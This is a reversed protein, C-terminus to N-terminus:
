HVSVEPILVSGRVHVGSLWKDEVRTREVGMVLILNAVPSCCPMSKAVSYIDPVVLTIKWYRLWTLIVVFYAKALRLPAIASSQSSRLRKYESRNSRPVTM